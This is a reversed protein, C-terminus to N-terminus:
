REIFNLFLIKRVARFLLNDLIFVGTYGVSDFTFMSNRFGRLILVGRFYFCAFYLFVHGVTSVAPYTAKHFQM